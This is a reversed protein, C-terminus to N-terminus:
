WCNMIASFFLLGVKVAFGYNKVKEEAEIFRLFMRFSYLMTEGIHYRPFHDKELLTVQFGEACTTLSVFLVTVTEVLRQGLSRSYIRRVPRRWHRPNPDFVTATWHLDNLFNM